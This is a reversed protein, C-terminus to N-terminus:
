VITGERAPELADVYSPILLRPVIEQSARGMAQLRSDAMTKKNLVRALVAAFQRIDTSDIRFGNVGEELQEEM